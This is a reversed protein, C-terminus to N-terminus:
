PAIAVNEQVLLGQSPHPLDKVACPKAEGLRSYACIEGEKGWSIGVQEKYWHLVTECACCWAFLRWGKCLMGQIWKGLLSEAIM